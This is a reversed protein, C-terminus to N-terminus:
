VILSLEAVLHSIPYELWVRVMQTRLEHPAVLLFFAYLSFRAVMPAVLFFMRAFSLRISLADCLPLVRGNAHCEIFQITASHSVIYIISLLMLSAAFPLLPEILLAVLLSIM